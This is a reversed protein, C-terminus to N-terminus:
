LSKYVNRHQSIICGFQGMRCPDLWSYRDFYVCFNSDRFQLWFACTRSVRVSGGKPHFCLWEVDSPGELEKLKTGSDADYLVIAGDYGGVAALKPTKTLDDSVYENNFAACSVTDTHAHSLPLTSPAAGSAIRHLFSKDDGGGSLISLSKSTADYHAAVSYVPGTHSELKAKSMDEVQQSAKSDAIEEEEDDEEMLVDDDNVQVEVVDKMDVFAPEEIEDNTTELAMSAVSNQPTYPYSHGQQGNDSSPVQDSDM